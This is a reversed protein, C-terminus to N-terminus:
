LRKGDRQQSTERFSCSWRTGGANRRKRHRRTTLVSSGLHLVGGGHRAAPALRALRVEGRRGAHSALNHRRRQARFKACFVATRTTKKRASPIGRRVAPDRAEALPPDKSPRRHKTRTHTICHVPSVIASFDGDLRVARVCARQRRDRLAKLTQCWGVRIIARPCVRSVFM